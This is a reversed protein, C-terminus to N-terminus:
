AEYAGELKWGIITVEPADLYGTDLV